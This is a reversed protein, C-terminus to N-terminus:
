FIQFLEAASSATRVDRGGRGQVKRRCLPFFHPFLLVFNQM